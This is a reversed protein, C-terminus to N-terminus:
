SGGGMSFGKGGGFNMNGVASGAIGGLAGMVSTWVSNNAAAIQNATDAADKGAGSAANSTGNPDLLGAAQEQQSVANNFNARGTAFNNETITTDLSSKTSAAGAALNEDLQAAMGSSSTTPADGGLTAMKENLAKQANAYNTAVGETAQTNLATKEQAGFGEQGVGAAIIPALSNTVGALVAQQEAFTTNYNATMSAYFASQETQLNQQAQTAGCM